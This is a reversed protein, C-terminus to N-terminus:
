GEGHSVKVYVGLWCKQSRGSNRRPSKSDIMNVRVTLSSPRASVLLINKRARKDTTEGCALTLRELLELMGYVWGATIQEDSMNDVAKIGAEAWNNLSPSEFPLQSLHLGGATLADAGAAVM